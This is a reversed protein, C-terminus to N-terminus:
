ILLQVVVNALLSAVFAALFSGFIILGLLGRKIKRTDKDLAREEKYIRGKPLIAVALVAEDSHRVDIMELDALFKATARIFECTVRNRKPFADILDNIELIKYEGNDGCMRVLIDLFRKTQKDLM